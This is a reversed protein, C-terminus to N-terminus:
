PHRLRFYLGTGNPIITCSNEQATTTVQLTSPTWVKLDSSEQLSWGAAAAPWHLVLQNSGPAAPQMALAPIELFTAVLSLAAAVTFTYDPTSAVVVGNESWGTFAYGSNVVASVTVSEGALFDGGGSVTGGLDNSAM